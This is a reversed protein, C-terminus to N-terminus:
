SVKEQEAKVFRYCSLHQQQEQTKNFDITPITAFTKTNRFNFSRNNARVYKYQYNVALRIIIVNNAIYGYEV